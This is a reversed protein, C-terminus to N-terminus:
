SQHLNPNAMSQAILPQPGQKGTGVHSHSPPSDSTCANQLRSPGVHCCGAPAWPPLHGQARALAPCTASMHRAHSRAAVAGSRGLAARAPIGVPGAAGDVVAKVVRVAAVQPLLLQVVGVVPEGRVDAVRLRQALRQDHLLKALRV